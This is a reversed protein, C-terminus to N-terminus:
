LHIDHNTPQTRKASRSRPRRKGCDRDGRCKKQTAHWGSSRLRQERGILTVAQQAVHRRLLPLSQPLQQRGLLLAIEQAVQRGLLTGPERRLHGGLLALAQAFAQTVISLPAVDVTRHAAAKRSVLPMTQTLLNDLRLAFPALGQMAM